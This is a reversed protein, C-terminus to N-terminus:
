KEIETLYKEVDNFLDLYVHESLQNNQFLLQLVIVLNKTHKLQKVAEDNKEYLQIAELQAQLMRYTVQPIESEYAKLKSLITSIHIEEDETEKNEEFIKVEHLGTYWTVPRD